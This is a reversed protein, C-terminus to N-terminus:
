KRKRGFHRDLIDDLVSASLFPKSATIIGYPIVDVAPCM